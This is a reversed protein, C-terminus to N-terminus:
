NSNLGGTNKLLDWVIDGLLYNGRDSQKHLDIVLSLKKFREFIAKYRHNFNNQIGITSYSVMHLNDLYPPPPIRVWPARASVSTKLVLAKFWEVM